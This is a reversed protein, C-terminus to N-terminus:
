LLSQALQIGTDLENAWQMRAREIGFSHGSAGGGDAFWTEFVSRNKFYSNPLLVVERGLMWGLLGAHLRDTVVVRGSALIMGARQTRTAAVRNILEVAANMPLQRDIAEPDAAQWLQFMAWDRQQDASWKRRQPEDERPWDAITIDVSPEPLSWRVCAEDDTRLLAVIDVVPPVERGLAAMHGQLAFAHDPSLRPEIGLATRAVAVSAAERAFVVVNRRGRLQQRRAHAAPSAGGDRYSISQPLQVILREPFDHLVRERTLDTHRYLDGFNGGGLVLIPGAPHHRRLQASDYSAATAVYTVVVGLADLLATTGSWIASDGLNGHEPAMVLAVEPTGDLVEALDTLAREALNTTM